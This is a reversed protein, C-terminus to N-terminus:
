SPAGNKRRFLYTARDVAVAGSVGTGTFTAVLLWWLTKDITDIRASLAHWREDQRATTVELETIRHRLADVDQAYVRATHTVVGIPVFAVGVRYAFVAYRLYARM